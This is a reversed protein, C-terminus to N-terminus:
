SVVELWRPAGSSLYNRTAQAAQAVTIREYDIWPSHRAESNPYFLDYLTSGDRTHRLDAGLTRMWGGICQPTGCDGWVDMNFLNDGREVDLTCHVLEGREMMGLLKILVDRTRETVGLDAASMFNRALM